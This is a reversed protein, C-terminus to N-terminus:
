LWSVLCSKEDENYELTLGRETLLPEVLKAQKDTLMMGTLGREAAQMINQIINRQVDMRLAAATKLQVINVMKNGEVIFAPEM